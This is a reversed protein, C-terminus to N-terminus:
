VEDWSPGCPLLEVLQLGLAEDHVALHGGPSPRVDASLSDDLARVLGERRAREVFEFCLRSKGAGAEGIVGIVQREGGRAKALADELKATEARRGVFRSLGRARSVDLRTRAKGVGELRWVRLPERVNKLSFEGLDHLELYGRVLRATHDTLYAAGPAALAEAGRLENGRVDALAYTFRTVLNPAPHAGYYQEYLRLDRVRFDAALDIVKVGAGVLERAQAMAVGHPTAFFVVDCADLAARDPEVFTLSGVAGRGRLSPFMDAVRTGADKRSTIAQVEAEPHQALLRLLEVGTYGTGGVIGVKVM